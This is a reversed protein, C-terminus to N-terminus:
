LAQMAALNAVPIKGNDTYFHGEKVNMAALATGYDAIEDPTVVDVEGAMPVIPRSPPVAKWAPVGKAIAAAPTGGNIKQGAKGTSPNTWRWYTQPLLVDSATFFEKWPLKPKMNAAPYACGSTTGFVFTSGAANKITSCFEAALPGLGPRNWDNPAGARDSEPDVIYGDLGAPILNDAVNSAEKLAGARSASPWRWAYVKM